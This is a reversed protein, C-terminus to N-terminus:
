QQESTSSTCISEFTLDFSSQMSKKREFDFMITAFISVIKQFKLDFNDYMPLMM